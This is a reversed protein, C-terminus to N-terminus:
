SKWAGGQNKRKVSLWKSVLLYVFILFMGVLIVVYADSSM